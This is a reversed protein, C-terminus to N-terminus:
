TAPVLAIRCFAAEGDLTGRGTRVSVRIAQSMLHIYPQIASLDLSHIILPAATFELSTSWNLPSHSTLVIVWIVM